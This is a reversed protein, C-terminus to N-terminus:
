SETLGASALQPRTFIVAPLGTYDVEHKGGLANVAAARGTAAAVYVFQPAGTVDGAAWVKPNSTQQRADVAIFGREDVAVGAAALNLRDTQARRGTAVLLRRGTVTQGADTVVQVGGAAAAVRVAHQELVTIGARAFAQRMLEVLEPEARPALRGVLTVRTGLGAFLQAQEMGVYGGGIVILSDPLEALEMATTSTLPDTEAIGPLDPNAPAAGAALVYAAAPLPRGDVLLTDPDAFRAEGRRIKFGHAAAVDVYKEARMGAILADKQAVVAALDVPGASTPVGRFPNHLAHARQGGAALLTKSPVCGINVCTGGVVAREVLVVSRGARRAHIGAAMAAGGSGVVVLDLEESM